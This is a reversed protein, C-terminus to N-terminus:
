LAQRMPLSLRKLIEPSVLSDPRILFCARSRGRWVGSVFPAFPRPTRLTGIESPRIVVVDSLRTVLLAILFQSGVDVVIAPAPEAIPDLGLRQAFDIAPVARDKVLIWGRIWDPGEIRLPLCSCEPELHHVSEERFGFDFTGARVVVWRLHRQLAPPKSLTPRQM